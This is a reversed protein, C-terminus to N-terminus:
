CELNTINTHKGTSRDYIFPVSFLSSESINPLKKWVSDCDGKGDCTKWLGFCYLDGLTVKPPRGLTHTIDSPDFVRCVQGFFVSVIISTADDIDVTSVYM